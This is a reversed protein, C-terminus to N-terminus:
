PPKHILIIILSTVQETVSEYIKRGPSKKTVEPHDQRWAFWHNWLKQQIDRRLSAMLADPAQQKKEKCKDMKNRIKKSIDKWNIQFTYENNNAMRQAVNISRPPNSGSSTAAAKSTSAM